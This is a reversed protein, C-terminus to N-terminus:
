MKKMEGDYM